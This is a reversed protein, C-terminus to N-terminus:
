SIWMAHNLMATDVAWQQIADSPVVWDVKTLAGTQNDMSVEFRAGLMLASDVSTQSSLDFRPSRDILLPNRGAGGQSIVLSMYPGLSGMYLRRMNELSERSMSARLFRSTPSGIEEFSIVMPYEIPALPRVDSEREYTYLSVVFSYELRVRFVLATRPGGEDEAILARIADLNAAEADEAEQKM